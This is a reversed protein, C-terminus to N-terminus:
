VLETYAHLDVPVELLYPTRDELAQSARVKLEDLTRVQAGVIGYARALAAFDPPSFDTGYAPLSRRTQSFRILSLSGDAFVVTLLPIQMSAILSLNHQMMLMGGDGVLAVVPRKPYQLHAAVAAPLGYGMSSLGNSVFFTHPITTHWFQGAVYKHSGVDCTLITEAPAVERLAYLAGLPSLGGSGSGPPRRIAHRREDLVEQPWPRPPLQEVLDVLLTGIEGIVEPPQYRGERTPWRTINVLKRDLFWPKDCEVPDFGVGIILDSLSLTELIVSDIAMGGAVGLFRPHDEPTIGKGKPTTMWPWGTADLTARIAPADAPQAGLGILLLPRKAAELLARVDAHPGGGSIRMVDSAERRESPFAQSAAIEAPIALHVPGPRDTRALHIAETVLADTRRGDVFFSGKTVGSFIRDLPLRQHSFSAFYDPAIQATLALLPSRDLYANAVGPVLNMAGPGLTAVCVGIQGTIQGTVDAMFAASAEHGVLVFSMGARRIADILVVVEGGPLGFVYQVGNAALTHAILDANTPM